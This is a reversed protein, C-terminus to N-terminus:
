AYFAALQDKLAGFRDKFTPYDVSQRILGGCTSGGLGTSQGSIMTEAIRLPGLIKEAVNLDSVIYYRASVCTVTGIAGVTLSIVGLVTLAVVAVTTVLFVNAKTTGNNYKQVVQAAYGDASEISQKLRNVELVTDKLNRIAGQVGEFSNVYSGLLDM